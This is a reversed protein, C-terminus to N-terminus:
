LLAVDAQPADPKTRSAFFRGFAVYSAGAEQAALGRELRNACSTGIIAGPGLRRRAEALPTDHAGLHVGDAGIAAALEVDDNIILRAGQARCLALLRTASDRRTEPDGAKDRYQILKAGGALAAGVARELQAPARC